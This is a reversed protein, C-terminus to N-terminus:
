QLRRSLVDGMSPPVAQVELGMRSLHDRIRQCLGLFAGDLLLLAGADKETVAYTDILALAEDFFRRHKELLANSVATGYDDDRMPEFPVNMRNGTM